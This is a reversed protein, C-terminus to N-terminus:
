VMNVDARAPTVPLRGLRKVLLPRNYVDLVAEWLQKLAPLAGVNQLTNTIHGRPNDQEWPEATKSADL